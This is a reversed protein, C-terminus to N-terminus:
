TLSDGHQDHQPSRERALHHRDVHGGEEDHGDAVEGGEELVTAPETM